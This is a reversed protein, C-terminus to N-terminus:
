RSEGQVSVFSPDDPDLSPSRRPARARILAFVGPLVWLTALTALSLGGIVARGLPATQQGGEGWGAAMPLLGAIMAVSTILIPRLRSVAGAVAAQAADQGAMRAREAFTVLLIANAIAVGVAMIVGIFSEINLTTGTLWLMAVVGVIVAPISSITVLALEWSQFNAVLLLAIVFVALLLGARLAGLLAGMTEIEGRIAISVGAPPKPLASLARSVASAADGLSTGEFNATVSV